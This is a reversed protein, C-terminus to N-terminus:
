NWKEEMKNELYKKFFENKVISFDVEYKTDKEIGTETFQWGIIKNILEENQAAEQDTDSFWNNPIENKLDYYAVWFNTNIPYLYENAIQANTYLITEIDKEAFKSILTSVLEARDEWLDKARGKGDHDEVDIALPLLCMKTKNKNLFDEIFKVEEDIEEENIAEDIYYFGYPIGLFECEDIFKQFDPDTYFNGEEGYGRGGIRIYVYNINYKLLFAAFENQNKFNKNQFNFKSVDTMLGIESNKDFEYWNAKEKEIYGVKNNAKIKYWYKENEDKYEEIIYINEGLELNSILRWKSLTPKRYFATNKEMIIAHTANSVDINNWEEEKKRYISFCILFIITIFIILVILVKKKNLKREEIIRNM